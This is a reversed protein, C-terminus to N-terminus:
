AHNGDTTREAARYRGADAYFLEDRSFLTPGPVDILACGGPEYIGGYYAAQALYVAGRVLRAVVADGRMAGVVVRTRGRPDLLDFREGGSRVCLENVFFGAHEHFPFARDTFVRALNPDDEPAGPIVTTVFARLVRDRLAADTDYRSPYSHLVARVASCGSVLAGGLIALRAAFERRTMSAETCAAHRADFPGAVGAM